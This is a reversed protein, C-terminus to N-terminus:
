PMVAFAELVELIARKDADSLTVDKHYQQGEFRLIAKDATALSRVTAVQSIDPAVDMWEWISTNNDREFDGSVLVDKVGDHWAVVRNVFLWDDAAYQVKMRLWPSAGESQRGIYLFVTSRSNTYRPQNPHKYWTIGEVQDEEHKLRKLPALRAAEIRGRYEGFKAKYGPTDPRIAALMEYGDRNQELQNAPVPRVMELAHAEIEDMFVPNEPYKGAYARVQAAAVSWSGKDISVRIADADQEPTRASPAKGPKPSADAAAVVAAPVHNGSSGAIQKPPRVSTPTDPEPATSATAAVDLGSVQGKKSEADPSQNVVGILIFTAVLILLANRRKRFPRFPYIVGGIAAFFVLSLFATM